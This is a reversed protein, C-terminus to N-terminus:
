LCPHHLCSWVSVLIRPAPAPWSEWGETVRLTVTLQWLEIHHGPSEADLLSWSLKEGDRSCTRKIRHYHSGETQQLCQRQHLLMLCSLPQIHFQRGQTDAKGAYLTLFKMNQRNYISFRAGHACDSNFGLATFKLQHFVGPSQQGRAHVAWSCATDSVPAWGSVPCVPSLRIDPEERM